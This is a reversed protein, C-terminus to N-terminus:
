LKSAMDDIAKRIGAVVGELKAKLDEWAHEGSSKLEKMSDNGKNIRHKLDEIKELAKIKSEAGLKAAKNKLEEIKGAWEKLQAETKEQYAKKLEENM